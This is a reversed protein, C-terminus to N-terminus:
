RMLSVIQNLWDVTAVLVERQPNREQAASDRTSSPVFNTSSPTLIEPRWTSDDHGTQTQSHHGMAASDMPMGFPAPVAQPGSIGNMPGDQRFDDMTGFSQPSTTSILAELEASPCHPTYMMTSLPPQIPNPVYPLDTIDFTFLNDTGSLSGFATPGHDPLFPFEPMAQDPLIAERDQQSNRDGRQASDPTEMDNEGQMQHDSQELSERSLEGDAEAM